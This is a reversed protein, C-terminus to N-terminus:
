AAGQADLLVASVQAGDVVMSVVIDSHAAVEAPTDHASTGPHEEAWRRAKGPTQTWVALEHGARALNAAMRGGMIGLGLFGIREGGSAM